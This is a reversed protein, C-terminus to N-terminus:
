DNKLHTRMMYGILASNLRYVIKKKWQELHELNNHLRAPSKRITIPAYYNNTIEILGYKSNTNEIIKLAEECLETPVAFTFYHPYFSKTMDSHKDKRFELSCLDAKTCKIEIEYIFNLKTLVIIDAIYQGYSVEDACLCQRTFRWYEM